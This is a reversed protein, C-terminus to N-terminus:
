LFEEVEMKLKDYEEMKEFPLEMQFKANQACCGM